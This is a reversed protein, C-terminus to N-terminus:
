WISVIGALALAGGENRQQTICVAHFNSGVIAWGHGSQYSIGLVNKYLNFKSSSVLFLAPFFPFCGPNSLDLNCSCFRKMM